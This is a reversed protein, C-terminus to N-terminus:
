QGTPIAGGYFVVSCGPDVSYINSTDVVYFQVGAQPNGTTSSHGIFMRQGEPTQVFDIDQYQVLGFNRPAFWDVRSKNAYRSVYHTVDGAEFTDGYATGQGALDINKASEGPRIHQNAISIGELYWGTRQAMHSIGMIGAYAEDDRRQILQSKGSFIMSPTYFGSSLNVAPCALEYASSYALGLLSGSTNTTNYTYIGYRWSGSAITTSTIPGMGPFVIQDTATPTYNVGGATITIQNAAFNISKVRAGVHLMVNSGNTIDVLQNKGRIRDFTFQSTELQYVVDTGANGNGSVVATATALIGTGDQFIGIERYLATEKIASGISMQLVNAIAQQDTKTAYAARLPVNFGIDSEFAGITMYGTNMMSGTGLDGGDLSIAQYDGGVSLQVPIRWALVASSGANWASIRHKENKKFMQAFKSEAKVLLPALKPRVQELMTPTVQSTAATISM